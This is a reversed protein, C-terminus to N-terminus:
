ELRHISYQASLQSFKHISFKHTGVGRTVRRERPEGGQKGRAGHARRRARACVCMYVRAASDVCVCVGLTVVALKSLFIGPQLLRIERGGWRGDHTKRLSPPPPPPPHSLSHSPFTACETSNQLLICEALLICEPFLSCSRLVCDRRVHAQGEERRGWGERVNTRGGGEGERQRSM